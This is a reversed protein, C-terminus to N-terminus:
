VRPQKINGTIADYFVTKDGSEIELTRNDSWGVIKYAEDTFKQDVVHLKTLPMETPHAFNYIVTSSMGHFYNGSVALLKGNPSPRIEMWRFGFGDKANDDIHTITEGRELDVVTYGQNDEGCLLYEDDHQATWAFPFSCHTRKIDAILNKDRYVKGRTYHTDGARYQEVVLRYRRTPSWNVDPKNPILNSPTYVSEIGKRGDVYWPPLAHM